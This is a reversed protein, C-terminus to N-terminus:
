RRARARASRDPDPLVANLISAVVSIILAGWIADWWFSDVHFALDLQGALWSTLELLLANIVILFLGLTLVVLPLSLLRLIPKLVANILGFILAVIVVTAITKSTSGQEGIHIGPVIVAALWLALGNVVTKVLVNGLWGM